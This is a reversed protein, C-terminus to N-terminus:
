KKQSDEALHKNVIPLYTLAIANYWHYTQSKELWEKSTTWDQIQVYHWGMLAIAFASKPDMALGKKFWSEAEDHQGIWDLCMGYRLYNFPYYRNLENSRNFFEMAKRAQAVYNTGGNEMSDLRYAEGILYATQYNNSEIAFAQKLDHLSHALVEPKVLWSPLNEHLYLGILDSSIESQLIWYQERATRLSQWGVYSIGGLLILTILWRMTMRVTHWYRETAYRFHASVLAMLTVALIANSPIHMNFDVGSHVLIAVLGLSGGMVFSAKNSRRAALDNQARQVYKWSRFVSWFFLGWAAAVLVGGVLGWDVLTNLYDNHVYEPRSQMEVPNKYDPRFKRFQVDFHDPGMGFWFNKQWMEVATGWLQIRINDAKLATSLHELRNHSLEAKLAFFTGIVIMTAALALAQLRYDRMQLMWFFLLVLSVGTALWGGVSVSVFIGAFIVLSAYGVLVKGVSGLRGTLTFALAIPLLMELYGALHNPNIFTASGRRHFIAPRLLGWVYDSTTLFQGVAYMALLTGLSILILGTLHIYDLHYLNHLIAMFLFGYILVKLMEQRAVYEVEATYYRIVAYLMFALVGWCVPPWLLRHKPNLWFRCLWLVLIATTLWEVIVFLYPRTCGFALPTYVLIAWVLGIIGKECWDDLKKRPLNELM